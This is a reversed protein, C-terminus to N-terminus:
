IHCSRPTSTLRLGEQPRKPPPPSTATALLPYKAIRFPQHKKNCNIYKKTQGLPTPTHHKPLGSPNTKMKAWHPRPPLRGALTPSTCLTIVVPVRTNRCLAGRTKLNQTPRGSSTPRNGQSRYYSSLLKTRLGKGNRGIDESVFVPPPHEFKMGTARITKSNDHECVSVCVSLCVSMIGFNHKESVSLDLVHLDTFIELEFKKVIVISERQISRIRSLLFENIIVHRCNNRLLANIYQEYEYQERFNTLRHHAFRKLIDLAQRMEENMRPNEDVCEDGDSDDVRIAQDQECCSPSLKAVPIDQMWVDSEENQM